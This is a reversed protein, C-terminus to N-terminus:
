GVTEPKAGLWDMIRGFLRARGCILTASNILGLALLIILSPECPIRYKPDAIPGNLALIYAITVLLLITQGRYEARALGTIAGFAQAIRSFILTIQSLTWLWMFGNARNVSIFASIREFITKGPMASLFTPPQNFQHLVAYFGTQFVNRFAGWTIGWAVQWWPLHLIREIALKQEYAAVDYPNLRESGVSRVYDAIVIHLGGLISKRDTCPWPTALCAYVWNLLHDGTQASLAAHGYVVYNHLLLPSAVLFMAMAPVLSLPGCYKWPLRLQVRLAIALGPVLFLPFYFLTLRIWLTIGFLIGALLLLLLPRQRRLAWLLACLGWSLFPLFFAEQLIYSAHVIFNPIITAVIAAPLVLRPSLAKAALAIGLVSLADLFAQITVVARLSESGVTKFVGAIFLIYLPLRDTDPWTGTALLFHAAM